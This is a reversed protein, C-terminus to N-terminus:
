EVCIIVRGNKFKERNLITLTGTQKNTKIEIKYDVGMKHHKPYLRIKRIKSLGLKEAFIEITNTERLDITQKFDEMPMKELKTSRLFGGKLIENKILNKKLDIIVYLSNLINLRKEMESNEKSLRKLKAVQNNIEEQLEEARSNLSSKKKELAKIDTELKKKEAIAKDRADTIEKKAKRTIDNPSSPADGQTVFTGYENESYFNWVKFGPVLSELLATREVLRTAKEGPVKKSHVLFDMAIQYHSEGEIVIHPKPLLEEFRNIEKKTEFIKKDKALIDKALSKFIDDQSNIIKEKLIKKEEESLGIYGLIAPVEGTKVTYEQLLKSLEEKSEHFKTELKGIKASLKVRQRIQPSIHKRGGRLNPIISYFIALLLVALVIVLTYLLKTKKRAIKATETTNERETSNKM